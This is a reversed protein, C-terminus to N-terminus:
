TLRDVIWSTEGPRAGLEEPTLAQTPWVSAGIVWEPLRSQMIADAFSRKPGTTPRVLSGYGIAAAGAVLDALQIKASFESRDLAIHGVPLPYRIRVGNWLQVEVSSQKPNTLRDLHPLWRRIEASDDHLVDFAGLQASWDHLLGVFAAGAPDLDSIDGAGAFEAPTAEVEAAVVGLLEDVGKPALNSMRRIASRLATGTDGAPKRAWNVFCTWLWQAGDADLTPWAMYLLNSLALHLGQRYLDIGLRAAVPEVLLDVFKSTAMFPKHMVAVKVTSAELETASLLELMRERGARTQRARVSHHERGSPVGLLSAVTGEDLSISALVFVPQAENLLDPGTNGSEDFGVTPRLQKLSRDSSSSGPYPMVVDYLDQWHM